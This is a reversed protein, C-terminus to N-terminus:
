GKFDFRTNRATVDQIAAGVGSAGRTKQITALDKVFEHPTMNTHAMRQMYSRATTINSAIDPSFKQLVEFNERARSDSVLEPSDEKLKRWVMETEMKSHLKRAGAVGVAISALAGASALGRKYDELYSAEKIQNREKLKGIDTMKNKSEEIGSGLKKAKMLNSETNLGFFKGVGESLGGTARSAEYKALSKLAKGSISM